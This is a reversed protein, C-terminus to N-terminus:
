FSIRLGLVPGQIVCTRLDACFRAPLLRLAEYGIELGVNGEDGLFIIVGGGGGAGWGDEHDALLVRGARGTLVLAVNRLRLPVLRLAGMIMGVRSVLSGGDVYTAELGPAVGDVVFYRFGGAALFGSDSSYGLGIALESTGRDGYRRPRPLELAPAAPPEPPVMSPSALPSEASAPHAPEVVPAAWLCPLVSALLSPLVVAVATVM